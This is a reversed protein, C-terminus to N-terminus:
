GALQGGGAPAERWAHAETPASGTESWRSSFGLALTLLMAVPLLVRFYGFQGSRGRSILLSAM